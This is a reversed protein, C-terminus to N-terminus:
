WMAIWFLVADLDRDSLRRGIAVAIVGGVPVYPLITHWLPERHPAAHDAVASAPGTTSEATAVAILVYGLVWGADILNGTAYTGNAILVALRQGRGSRRAPRHRDAGTADAPRTRVPHPGSRRVTIVLDGFPYALTIARALLTGSSAQYVPGLVLAWSCSLLSTTVIVGDLIVRVRGAALTPAAPFALM